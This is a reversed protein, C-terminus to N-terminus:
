EILGKQGIEGILSNAHKVHPNSHSSFSASKRVCRDQLFIKFWWFLILSTTKKKITAKKKM